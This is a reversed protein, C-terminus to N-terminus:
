RNWSSVREFNKVWKLHRLLLPEHFLSLDNSLPAVKLTLSSSIEASEMVDCRREWRHKEVTHFPCLTGLKRRCFYLLSHLLSFVVGLHNLNLESFM